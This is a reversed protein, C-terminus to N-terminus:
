DEQSFIHTTLDQSGCTKKSAMLSQRIDMKKPHKKCTKEYHKLLHTTGHSAPTKLGAKCYNCETFQINEVTVREFHNWAESTYKRKGSCKSIGNVRLDNGGDDTESTIELVNNNEQLNISAEESEM